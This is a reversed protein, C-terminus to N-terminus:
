SRTSYGFMVTFSINVGLLKNIKIFEYLKILVSTALSCGESCVMTESEGITHALYIGSERFVKREQEKETKEERKPM